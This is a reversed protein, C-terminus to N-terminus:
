PNEPGRPGKQIRENIAVRTTEWDTHRHAADDVILDAHPKNWWLEDYPIKYKDLWDLLIKGQLALVRGQNGACTKMHRGTQLIITHGDEKLQRLTEIAEPFPKVDAYTMNGLKRECITNDIDFIITLKNM